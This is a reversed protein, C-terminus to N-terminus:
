VQVHVKLATMPEPCISVEIYCLHEAFSFMNSNYIIYLIVYELFNEQIWERTGVVETAVSRWEKGDCTLKDKQCKM